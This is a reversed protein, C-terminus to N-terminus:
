GRLAVRRVVRATTNSKTSHHEDARIITSNGNAGRSSSSANSSALHHGFAFGNWDVHPLKAPPPPPTFVAYGPRESSVSFSRLQSDLESALSDLFESANFRPNGLDSRASSMGTHINTTGNATKEQTRSQGRLHVDLGHIRRAAPPVAAGTHGHVITIMPDHRTSNTQFFHAGSSSSRAHAANMRRFFEFDVDKWLSVSSASKGGSPATGSVSQGAIGDGLPNTGSARSAPDGVGRFKRLSASIGEPLTMEVSPFDVYPRRNKLSYESSVQSAPTKLYKRRQRKTDQLRMLDYSYDLDVNLPHALAHQFHGPFDGVVSPVAASTATVTASGNVSNNFVRSARPSPSGGSQNKKPKYRHNPSYNSYINYPFLPHHKGISVQSKGANDSETSVNGAKKVNAGRFVELDDYFKSHIAAIQKQRQERSDAPVGRRPGGTGWAATSEQPLGHSFEFLAGHPDFGGDGLHTRYV